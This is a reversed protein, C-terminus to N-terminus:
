LKLSKSLYVSLRYYDREFHRITAMAKNLVDIRSHKKQMQDVKGHLDLAYHLFQGKQFM